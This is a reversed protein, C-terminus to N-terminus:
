LTHRHYDIYYSKKVSYHIFLNSGIFLIWGEGIREFSQDITRLQKFITYARNSMWFCCALTIFFVAVLRQKSLPRHSLDILLLVLIGIYVILSFLSVFGFYFGLWVVNGMSLWNLLYSACVLVIALALYGRQPHIPPKKM